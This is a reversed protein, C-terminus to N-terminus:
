EPRAAGAGAGVRRADHARVVALLDVADALTASGVHLGLEVMRAALAAVLAAEGGDAAM